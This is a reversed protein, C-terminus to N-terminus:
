SPPIIRPDYTGKKDKESKPKKAVAGRLAERLVSVNFKETEEQALKDWFETAENWEGWLQIPEGVSEVEQLILAWGAYRSGEDVFYRKKVVYPTAGGRIYDRTLITDGVVPCTGYTEFPYSNLEELRGDAAVSYTRIEVLPREEPPENLSSGEQPTDQIKKAM